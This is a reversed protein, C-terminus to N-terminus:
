FKTSPEFMQDLRLEIDPDEERLVLSADDSDYDAVPLPVDMSTNDSHPHIEDNFALALASWADCWSSSLGNSEPM